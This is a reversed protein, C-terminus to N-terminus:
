MIHSLHKTTVKCFHYKFFIFKLSFLLDRMVLSDSKGTDDISRSRGDPEGAVCNCTHWGLVRDAWGDSAAAHCHRGRFVDFLSTRGRVTPAGVFFRDAYKWTLWFSFCFTSVSSSGYLVLLFGGAM